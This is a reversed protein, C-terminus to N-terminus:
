AGRLSAVVDKCDVLGLQRSDQSRPNDGVVVVFGDPVQEVGPLPLWDPVPDGAVAAVRKVRHPLEPDPVRFVIVERRRPRRFLKRALLRQGDHLTPAMSNGRVTVRIWM